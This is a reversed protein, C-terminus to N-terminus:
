GLKTRRIAFLGGKLVIELGSSPTHPPSYYYSFIWWGDTMTTM